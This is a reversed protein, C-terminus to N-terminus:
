GKLNNMARHQLDSSVLLIHQYRIKCLLMYLTLLQIKQSVHLVDRVSNNNIATYDHCCLACCTKHEPCAVVNMAIKELQRTICKQGIKQNSICFTYKTQQQIISHDTSPQMTMAVSLSVRRTKPAHQLAQMPATKFVPTLIRSKDHAIFSYASIYQFPKLWGVKLGNGFMCQENKM